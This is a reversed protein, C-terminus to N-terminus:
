VYVIDDHVCVVGDYTEWCFIMYLYRSSFMPTFLMHMSVNYVYVYMLRGHSIVHTGGLFPLYINILFYHRM